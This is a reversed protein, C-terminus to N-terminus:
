HPFWIKCYKWNLRIDMDLFLICVNFYFIYYVGWHGIITVCTYAQNPSNQDHTCQNRGHASFLVVGHHQNKSVSFTYAMIEWDLRLDHVTCIRRSGVTRVPGCSHRTTSCLIKHLATFMSIILVCNDPRIMHFQVVIVLSWLVLWMRVWVRLYANISVADCSLWHGQWYERWFIEQQNSKWDINGLSKKKHIRQSISKWEWRM